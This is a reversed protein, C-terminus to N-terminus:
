GIRSVDVGNALREGDHGFRSVSGRSGRQAELDDMPISGASRYELLARAIGLRIAGAQGSLGGGIAKCTVDVKGLMETAELPRLAHNVLTERTLYEALNKGNVTYKGKGPVIIARASSEKRRGTASQKQQEM